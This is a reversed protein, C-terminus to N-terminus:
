FHYKIVYSLYPDRYPNDSRIKLLLLGAAKIIASACINANSSLKVSNIVVGSLYRLSIVAKLPHLLSSSFLSVAICRYLSVPVPVQFRFRSGSGPVPVQFRAYNICILANQV